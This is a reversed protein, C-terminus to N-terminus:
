RCVLTFLQVSIFQVGLSWPAMKAGVCTTITKWRKITEGSDDMQDNDIELNIEDFM